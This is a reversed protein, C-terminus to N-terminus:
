YKLLNRASLCTGLLRSFYFIYNYSLPHRIVTRTYAWCLSITNKIIEFFYHKRTVTSGSRYRRYYIAKESTCKLKLIKDSIQFIFLSDEGNQYKDSFRHNRIIDRHLLKAVPISLFSRVETQKCWEKNKRKQFLNSIYYPIFGEEGDNFALINSIPIYGQQVIDYFEQLYIESVYDDDDIFTIYEGKATDLAINRANSVGPQDTQIFKVFLDPHAALYSRILEEYPEKCGNLILLVEFDTKALTQKVLSDLCKWLYAQPKYTPIIVSIKM